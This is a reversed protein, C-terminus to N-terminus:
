PRVETQPGVTSSDPSARTTVPLDRPKPNERRSPRGQRPGYRTEQSNQGEGSNGSPLRFGWIQTASRLGDPSVVGKLHLFDSLPTALQGKNHNLSPFCVKCVLLWTM